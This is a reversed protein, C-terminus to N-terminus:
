TKDAAASPSPLHKLPHHFAPLIDQLSMRGTFGQGQLLTHINGQMSMKRNGSKCALWPGEVLRTRRRRQEHGFAASLCLLCVVVQEALVAAVTSLCMIQGGAASADDDDEEM